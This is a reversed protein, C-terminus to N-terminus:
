RKGGAREIVFLLDQGSIKATLQGTADRSFGNVIGQSTMQGIINSEWGKANQYEMLATQKRQEKLSEEQIKEQKRAAKAGFIGSIAGVVGGIAAGWPGFAMGAAAGSLAGGLGQDVSSTKSSMSSILGGAIGAGAVIGKSVNTSLKGIKFDDSDLLDSFKNGIETAIVDTFIKNISGALSSFVNNFVEYFNSGLDDINDLIGSIGRRFGGEVLKSIRDELKEDDKNTPANNSSNEFSEVMKAYVGSTDLGQKELIAIVEKYVDEIAKLNSALNSQIDKDTKGTITKNELKSIKDYLKQVNDYAKKDWKENIANESAKRAETIALLIDANKKHQIALQDYYNKNQDLEQQRSAIRDVGAKALIGSIIDQTKQEYKLRIQQEELAQNEAILARTSSIESLTQGKNSIKKASNVNKEIASLDDLYKKYKQKNKELETDLGDSNAIDLSFKANQAIDRVDQLYNKIGQSAKQDEKYLEKRIDLRDGLLANIEKEAKDNDTNASKNQAELIGIQANRQKILSETYAENYKVGSQLAKERRENIAAQDKANEQQLKSIARENEIQKKISDELFGTMVRAKATNQISVTLKDYAESAKGALIQEVTFKDLYEPYEKKLKRVLGTREDLGRSTDQSATYLRKLEAVELRASVAAKTQAQEYDTLGKTLSERVENARSDQISRLASAFNNISPVARKFADTNDDTAKKARQSWMTYFTWASTIAAVGVSLLMAPSLMTTMVGRLLTMTTVTQGTQVAAARAGASYTAWNATLQQLNNGIGMMGFPADQIIRNFEMAVGNANGVSKGFSNVKSSVQPTANGFATVSSTAQNFQKSINQPNDGTGFSFNPTKVLSFQTNLNAVSQTVEQISEKARKSGKSVSASAEKDFSAAGSVAREFSVSIGGIAGEAESLAKVLGKANGDIEVQLRAM